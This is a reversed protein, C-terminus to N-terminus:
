DDVQRRLANLMSTAGMEGPFKKLFGDLIAMAMRPNDTKVYTDALMCVLKSRRAPSSISPITQALAYRARPLDMEENRNISKVAFVVHEQPNSWGDRIRGWLLALSEDIRGTKMATRAWLGRLHPNHFTEYPNQELIEGLEDTSKEAIPLLDVLRNSISDPYLTQLRARVVLFDEANNEISISACLLYLNLDSENIAVLDRALTVIDATMFSAYSKEWALRAVEQAVSQTVGGVGQVAAAVVASLDPAREEGDPPLQWSVEEEPQDTELSTKAELISYSSVDAMKSVGLLDLVTSVVAGPMIGKSKIGLERDGHYALWEVSGASYLVLLHDLSMTEQFRLIASSISEVLKGVEDSGGQDAPVSQGDDSNSTKTALNLSLYHFRAQESRSRAQLLAEFSAQPVSVNRLKASQQLVKRDVEHVGEVQSPAFRSGIVVSEIGQAALRHWLIPRNFETSRRRRFSKEGLGSSLDDIFGDEPVLWTEVGHAELSTGSLLTAFTSAPGLWRRRRIKFFKESQSKALFPGNVNGLQIQLLGVRLGASSDGTDNM